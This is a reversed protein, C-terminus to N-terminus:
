QFTFNFTEFFNVAQQTFNNVRPDKWGQSTDVGANANYHYQHVHKPAEQIKPIEEMYREKIERQYAFPFKSCHSLRVQSLFKKM